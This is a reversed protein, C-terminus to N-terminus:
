AARRLSAYCSRREPDHRASALKLPSDSASLVGEVVADALGCVLEPHEPSVLPCPCGSLHLEGRVVRAQFGLAELARPLKKRADREGPRGLLYRGWEVGLGRLERKGAGSRLVAACLLEALGRFGEGGPTWEPAISYRTRPRGRPRHEREISVVGADALFALHARATNPHVEAAEAIETLPAPGHEALHRAIRLRTPDAVADLYSM